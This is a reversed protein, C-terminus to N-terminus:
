SKAPNSDRRRKPARTRRDEDAAEMIGARIHELSEPLAEVWLPMTGVGWLCRVGKTSFGSAPPLDIHVIPPCLLGDGEKVKRKKPQNEVALDDQSDLVAVEFSSESENNREIVIKQLYSGNLSFAHAPRLDLSRGSVYRTFDRGLRELKVFTHGEVVRAEPFWPSKGNLKNTIVLKTEIKTDSM